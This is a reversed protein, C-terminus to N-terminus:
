VTTHKTTRTEITICPIMTLGMMRARSRCVSATAAIGLYCFRAKQRAAFALDAAIALITASNSYEMVNDMRMSGTRHAQLFRNEIKHAFSAGVSGVLDGGVPNDM